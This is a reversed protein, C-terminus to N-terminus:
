VVAKDMCFVVCTRKSWRMRVKGPVFMWVKEFLKLPSCTLYDLHGAEGVIRM